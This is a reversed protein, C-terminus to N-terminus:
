MEWSERTHTAQITHWLYRPKTVLSSGQGADGM